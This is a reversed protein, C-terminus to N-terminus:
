IPRTEMDKATMVGGDCRMIMLPAAIGAKEVCSQTMRATELMKPILSGNVVATRTRTQLGYLRSVEHGTTALLGLKGALAAVLDENDGHDVGFAETIVVVAAGQAKFQQLTNEIKLLIDKEQLDFYAHQMTLYKGPALELPALKSQKAIADTLLGSGLALVAVKAVDGELLANTAQTTGHAIFMVEEPAINQEQLLKTLVQVIGEAVGDAAQHTTPVKAQGIIRFNEGDLAVADTFTGGVDIGIRVKRM